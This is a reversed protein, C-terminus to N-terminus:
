EGTKVYDKFAKLTGKEEDLWYPRAVNGEADLDRGSWWIAVKIRDYNQIEEFMERIWQAKDGGVSSSAFETIMLPKDFNQVAERYIPEYIERFSRWEEGEYYTGTNYGTLGIIDVYQDGPYYRFAHNWDYQPFSRENPNWVWIVYPLAGAEEFRQFVYQYLRRFIETDRSTHFASFACWDGNMENCLRFLVPQKTDRIAGAFDELYQDFEGNLIDYVMNGEEQFRTQLTLELIRNRKKANELAEVYTEPLGNRHFHKYCLLFDFQYELTKELEDLKEFDNPASPEFIGWTLPSDQSFYRLYVAKTEESWYDRLNKQELASTKLSAGDLGVIGSGSVSYDGGEFRISRAISLFEDRFPKASRFLLTCVRNGGPLIDLCVYYPKDGEIAKLVPRSWQTFHATYGAVEMEKRLEPTHDQGNELFSDSYHIYSAAEEDSKCHEMYIELTMGENGFSSCLDGLSIKKMLDEPITLEYGERENVFLHNGQRDTELRFGEIEISDEMGENELGAGEGQRQAQAALADAEMSGGLSKEETMAWYFVVSILAILLLILLIMGQALGSVITQGQSKENKLDNKNQNKSM